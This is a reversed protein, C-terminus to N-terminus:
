TEMCIWRTYLISVNRPRICRPSPFHRHKRTKLKEISYKLKDSPPFGINFDKQSGTIFIKTFGRSTSPWNRSSSNTCNSLDKVVNIPTLIRSQIQSISHTKLKKPLLEYLNSIVGYKKGGERFCYTKIKKFIMCKLDLMGLVHEMKNNSGRKNKFNTLKCESKSVSFRQKDIHREIPSALSFM